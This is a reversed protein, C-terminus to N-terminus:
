LTLPKGLYFDILKIRFLQDYKAQILDFQAKDFNTKSTALDLSNVLGVEYRQSIAYYAEKNADFTRLASQYKKQAAQADFIAQYITKNLNNKALQESYSYNQLNIQARKVATKTQSGNFIPISLGFSLSQNFNQDIQDNFATKQFNSTFVPTVVVENTTQTIGIPRTGTQIPSGLQTVSNSSYGSGLSGSMTLRPSYSGKAVQLAKQAVQTNYNAISIAPQTILAQQYVEAALYNLDLGEISKTVPIVIDYPISLDREMFQALNLKSVDLQNQANTLNFETTSYQSSAQALDATTKNGVNFLKQERDLTQKSLNLQNKAAEVLDTNALITLYTTIVNLMLDNKLKATQSKDSQLQLKNQSIQNLKQFGQFLTVSSSLGGNSNTVQRNVFQYSLQDVSRGFNFNINSSANLNPLLAMKSQKINADSLMENLTSQKIQINNELTLNIAQQVTIKEVGQAFANSISFLLVVLFSLIVIKQPILKNMRHNIM